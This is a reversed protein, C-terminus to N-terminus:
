ATWRMRYAFADQPDVFAFGSSGMAWPGGLFEVIWRVREAIEAQRIVPIPFVAADDPHHRLATFRPLAEMQNVGRLWEPRETKNMLMLQIMKDAEGWKCGMFAENAALNKGLAAFSM